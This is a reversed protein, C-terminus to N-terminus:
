SACKWAVITQSQEGLHDAGLTVVDGPQLYRPPNRNMGVDAPTGTLVVDGPEVAIVHSIYSALKKVDFIMNKTNSDQRRKGNVDLWLAIRQVKPIEDPTALFPGLPGFTPASKGKMWNGGRSM